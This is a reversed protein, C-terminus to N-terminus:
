KGTIGLLKNYTIRDNLIIVASNFQADNNLSFEIKVKTGLIRGLIDSKLEALIADKYPAFNSSNIAEIDNRLTNLKPVLHLYNKDNELNVIYKELQKVEESEYKYNRSKVFKLFEDFLEDDGPLNATEGRGAIFATAFEFFFGKALLDLMIGPMKTQEVTSDPNIGGASYVIRKNDTTFASAIVSDSNSIVKNNKSYDIKQISRGSPTYYRATTIKISTNYSLPSITQVLGKGFSKTGVIIGRDHDQIAGAVIESASASNENILVVLPVDPLMAEETTYYRKISTSDRGKTSVILEGKKIFKNSIEVAVDLLGGPNGRLDLILSKIEKQSKLENIANRLENGATRTFGSLRIYANNSNEPVFGYFTVNKIQIEERVLNYEIPNEVGHRLIKIKVFTGPEGKVFSSLDEYNKASFEVSDVAFIVDGAKIGQRQASYGDIVEIITVKDNRVGVSIGVGGYKGNTILEIDEQRREDMFTTYPDLSQLMGRIGSRLFESPNIGDVYNFTIEKYVRTFIDINKAIEFYIDKTAAYFGSFIILILLVGAIKKM